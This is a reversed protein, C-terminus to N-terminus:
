CSEENNEFEAETTMQLFKIELMVRKRYPLRRLAEGLTKLFGDIADNEPVPIKLIDLLATQLEQSQDHKKRKKSVSSSTSNFSLRGPSSLASSEHSCVDPGVDSCDSFDNSENEKQVLSSKEVTTSLTSITSTTPFTDDLPRM